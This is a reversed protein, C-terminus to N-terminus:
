ASGTRTPWCGLPRGRRGFALLLLWGIVVPPLVLPLHVMRMSCCEQGSLARACAAVGTVFALPLTGLIARCGHESEIIARLHGIEESTWRNRRIKIQPAFGIAARLRGQGQASLLIAASRRGGRPNTSTKGSRALPYIIPPHSNAPFVGVVGYARPDASRTPPTSSAWRRKAESSWRSRPASM